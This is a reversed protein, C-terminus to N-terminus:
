DVKLAVASIVERYRVITNLNNSQKVLSFTQHSGALDTVLRPVM